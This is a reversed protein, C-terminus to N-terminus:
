KALLPQLGEVVAQAMLRYGADNCHGDPSKVQDWTRPALLQHFRTRVDVFPAGAAAAALRLSEEAPMQVPYTLFVPLAGANRVQTAIRALHVGLVRRAGVGDARALAEEVIRELRGHVDPECVFSELVPRLRDAARLETAIVRLGGVATETDNFLVYAGFITRIGEDFDRLGLSVIKYRWFWAWPDQSLRISEDISRKAEEQRGIAHESQARCRWLLADQPHTELLRVAVELAEASRGCTDLALVFNRGIWYDADRRWGDQLWQMHVAAAADQGHRRYLSVLMHRTVPDGPCKALAAEFQAIAGPLDNAASLRWGEQQHRSAEANPTWNTPEAQYPNTLRLPRTQWEPGRMAAQTEGAAEGGRVRGAIWAFLRPIRWRFRYSRYDVSDAAGEALEEPVSWFDNQGVLVCVVRPRFEALQSPLRLLVDRSNQGSQGGNVVTWQQQSGARLLEQVVAPYGCKQTDSSGMGHTWSDGVCLVADHGAPIETVLQRYRSWVLWAGVQMTGELLVLGVALSLLLM